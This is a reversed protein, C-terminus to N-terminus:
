GVKEVNAAQEGKPGIVVDFTVKDGEQLSRFGKGVIATYHVFVDKGDDQEIFGYGKANNFWKVRGTKRALEEVEMGKEFDLGDV